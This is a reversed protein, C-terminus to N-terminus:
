SASIEPPGSHELQDLENMLAQPALGAVSRFERTFSAPELGSHRALKSIAREGAAISAIAARVRRVRAFQKPSLGV